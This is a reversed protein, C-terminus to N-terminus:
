YNEYVFEKYDTIDAFIDVNFCETSYFKKNKFKIRNNKFEKLINKEKQYCNYFTDELVFIEDYKIKNKFREYLSKSTIGIKWVNENEIRIYYLIGRLKKNDENRFFWNLNGIGTGKSKNIRDIEEKSKTRLTNQWLEQRYEFIKLGLEDGYKELCREMSFTSQREKLAIEADEQCLGKGLYYEIKTTVNQPNEKKSAKMKEITEKRIDGRVFKKSFPSLRGGHQFGPNKDGSINESLTQRYETTYLESKDTINFRETYEPISINHYKNLHTMPTVFRESCIKCQPLTDFKDGFKLNLEKQKNIRYLIKGSEKREKTKCKTCKESYSFSLWSFKTPSGCSCVEENEKKHFKDFYEKKDMGHGNVIHNKFSGNSSFEKDCIKCKFM